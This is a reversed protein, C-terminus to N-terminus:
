AFEIEKEICAQKGVIKKQFQDELKKWAEVPDVSDGLLYLLSPDILLFLQPWRRQM